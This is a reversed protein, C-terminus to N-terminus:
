SGPPPDCIGDRASAEAREKHVYAQGSGVSIFIDPAFCVVSFVLWSVGVAVQEVPPRPRLADDM